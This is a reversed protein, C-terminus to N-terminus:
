RYDYNRIRWLNEVFNKDFRLSPLLYKWAGVHNFMEDFIALYQPPQKTFSSFFLFDADESNIAEETMSQLIKNDLDEKLRPVTGEEVLKIYKEMKDKGLWPKLLLWKDIDDRHFEGKSWDALMERVMFQDGIYFLDSLDELVDLYYMHVYAWWKIRRYTPPTPNAIPPNRSLCIEQYLNWLAHVDRRLEKADPPIQCLASLARLDNWDVDLEPSVRRDNWLAKLAIKWNYLTKESVKINYEAELFKRGVSTKWENTAWVFMLEQYQQENIRSRFNSRGKEQDDCSSSAM